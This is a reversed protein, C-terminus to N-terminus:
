RRSAPKRSYGDRRGKAVKVVDELEPFYGLLYADMRVRLHYTDGHAIHGCWSAYSQAVSELSREGREYEKRQDRIRRKENGISKKRVKRVVKGTDTLYTHFGLFDIGNRLPFIHTKGNLTLGVSASWEEIRRLVRRLEAKNSSIAYFDDMYRGYMMGLEDKMMHDLEDAYLIAILQSSQNGIPIGPDPTSDIIRDLLWGVKDLAGEDWSDLARRCVRKCEDHRLSYFYKSYDGKLVWGDAYDWEAMGRYPLGAARRAENDAAKRSFFYRRMDRSLRDLGYHTGKGVQVASNDAVMRRTFAPYLAEDCVAHQAVKGEFCVAQVLREKPEHVYFDHYPGFEYSRSELKRALSACRSAPDCMWSLAGPSDLHGRKSKRYARYVETFGLEEMQRMEGQRACGAGRSGRMADATWHKRKGRQPAERPIGGGKNAQRM